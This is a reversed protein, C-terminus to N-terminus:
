IFKVGVEIWALTDVEGFKRSEVVHAVEEVVGHAEGIYIQDGKHPTSATYYKNLVAGDGCEYIKVMVM